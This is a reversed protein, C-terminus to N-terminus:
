RTSNPQLYSNIQNIDQNISNIEQETQRIDNEISARSIKDIASNPDAVSNALMKSLLEKKTTLQASEEQLDAQKIAKVDDLKFSPILKKGIYAGQSLGMLVVFSWPLYPIYPLDPISSDPKKHENYIQQFLKIIEGSSKQNILGANFEYCKSEFVLLALLTWILMQCKSFDIGNDGMLIDKWKPVAIKNVLNSDQTQKSVTIGKVAVYSSLTLGLLWIASESFIPEYYSFFNRTSNFTLSLMISIQSSIIVMAWLVAQLRSLSYTGSDGILFNFFSKKFNTFGFISIILIFLLGTISSSLTLLSLGQLVNGNGNQPKNLYYHRFVLASLIFILIWILPTRINRGSNAPSDQPKFIM